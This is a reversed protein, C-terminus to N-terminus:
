SQWEIRETSGAGTRRRRQRCKLMPVLPPALQAGASCRPSRAADAAAAPKLWTTLPRKLPPQIVRASRGARARRGRRGSPVPRGRSCAVLGSAATSRSLQGGRRRRRGVGRRHAGVSVGSGRVGAEGEGRVQSSVGMVRMSLVRTMRAARPVSSEALLQSVSAGSRMSIFLRSGSTASFGSRAPRRHRCRGRRARSPSSRGCRRRASALELVVLRQQDLRALRDAHEAGMGVRRAHQDGVGVEHRVPRGPLM